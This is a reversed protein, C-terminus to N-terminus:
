KTSNKLQDIEAKMVTNENKLQLVYLYLEEIKELQKIQLEGVNYNGEKKVEEVSPIGPLHKNASVFESIEELSKLNYNGSFVYDPWPGSADVRLERVGVKGEVVLSYGNQPATGIGVEGNNNIRMKEAGGIAFGIEGTGPHFVGTQDDNWWTYDPRGAHSFGNSGRIFAASTPSIPTQTFVANGVVHLRELPDPNAIGLNGAGTLTMLETVSNNYNLRDFRLSPQNKDSGGGWLIHPENYPNDVISQLQFAATIGNRNMRYGYHDAFNGHEAPFLTQGISIWQSEDKIGFVGSVYHGIVAGVQEENDCGFLDNQTVLLKGFRHPDILLPQAGIGTIGCRWADNGTVTSGDWTQANSSVTLLFFLTVLSLIKFTSKM